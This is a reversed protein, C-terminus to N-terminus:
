RPPIPCTSPISPIPTECGELWDISQVGCLNAEKNCHGKCVEDAIVYWDNASTCSKQEMTISYGDWCTITTSSYYPTPPPVCAGDCCGYYCQTLLSSMKSSSVCYYEKLYTGTSQKVCEDTKSVAITTSKGAVTKLTTTGKTEFNWGYDSDVCSPVPKSKTAGGVLDAENKAQGSGGGWNVTDASNGKSNKNFGFVGLLIAVIAVIAVIGIIISSFNKDSKIVDPKETM